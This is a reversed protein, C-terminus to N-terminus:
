TRSRDERTSARGMLARRLWGTWDLRGSLRLRRRLFAKTWTTRGDDLRRLTEADLTVRIVPTVSSGRRLRWRGALAAVHFALAGDASLVAVEVGRNSPPTSLFPQLVRRLTAEVAASSRVPRPPRSVVRVVRVVKEVKAIAAGSSDHLATTFTHTASGTLNARARIEEATEESIEVVLDVRDRAPRVFTITASSDWVAYGGGLRRSLLFVHFPDVLTYLAGGFHSGAMNMNRWRLPLTAHVIANAPDVKTVRAGIGWFPPFLRWGLPSLLVLQAPNRAQSLEVLFHRRLSQLDRKGNSLPSRDFAVTRPTTPETALGPQPLM